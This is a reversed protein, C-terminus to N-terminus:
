RRRQRNIKELWKKYRLRDAEYNKERREEERKFRKIAKRSEAAHSGDPYMKLYRKYAGVGQQKQVEAWAKEETDWLETTHSWRFEEYRDVADRYFDEPVSVIYDSWGQETNTEEAVRYLSDCKRVVIELAEDSYNEGKYKLHFDYLNFLSHSEYRKFLLYLADEKDSQKKSNTAIYEWDSVSMQYLEKNCVEYEKDKSEEKGLLFFGLVVLLAIAVIILGYMIRVDLNSRSYNGEEKIYRHMNVMNM